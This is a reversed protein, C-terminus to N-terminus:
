YANTALLVLTCAIEIEIFPLNAKLIQYFDPNETNPNFIIRQPATKIIYDYLEKQNDPSVYLTVTHVDSHIKGVTEIKLEGIQAARWGIPIVKHGKAILQQVAKYSYREPNPSAGLVITKM